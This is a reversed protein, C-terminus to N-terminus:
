ENVGFREELMDAFDYGDFTNREKVEKATYARDAEQEAERLEKACERVIRQAFRELFEPTGTGVWSTIGGGAAHNTIDIGGSARALELIRENM